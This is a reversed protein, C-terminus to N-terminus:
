QKTRYFAMGALWLEVEAERPTRITVFRLNTTLLGNGDVAGGDFFTNPVRNAKNAQKFQGFPIVYFAWEGSVQMITTYGNGCEDPYSARSNTSSAIPTGTGPDFGATGGSQENTGGDISYSRCFTTAQDASPVSTNDDDIQLTFAKTTPGPARAWFAIGEWSSANTSTKGFSWTGFLGGWDNNHSALLVGATVNGCVPGEPIPVNKTMAGGGADTPVSKLSMSAVPGVSNVGADPVYDPAGYWDNDFDGLRLGFEYQSAETCDIPLNRFTSYKSCGAAGGLVSLLAALAGSVGIRNLWVASKLGLRM